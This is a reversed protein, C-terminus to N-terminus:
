CMVCAQLGDCVSQADNCGRTTNTPTTSAADSGDEDIRTRKAPPTDFGPYASRSQADNCFSEVSNSPRALPSPTAAIPSNAAPSPTAGIPEPCEQMVCLWMYRVPTVPNPDFCLVFRISVCIFFVFESSILPTSIHLASKNPPHTKPFHTRGSPSALSGGFIISM